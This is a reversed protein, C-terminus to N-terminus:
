TDAIPDDGDAIGEAEATRHCGADNRCATAVDAGSGVIIEQLDVRRDIAAVGAARGEVQGAYHDAYVRRDERGRAAIDADGEGDRGRDGLVHHLFEDLIAGDLASPEAYMDLGYVLVDGLGETKILFLAREDGIGL